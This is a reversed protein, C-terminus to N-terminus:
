LHLNSANRDAPSRASLRLAPPSQGQVLEAHGGLRRMTPLLNGFAERLQGRRTKVATLIQSIHERMVPEQERPM